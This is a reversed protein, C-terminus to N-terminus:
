GQDIRACEDVAAHNVRDTANSFIAWLAQAEDQGAQTAPLGLEAALAVFDSGAQSSDLIEKVRVMEAQSVRLRNVAIAVQRGLQKGAADYLIRTSPM